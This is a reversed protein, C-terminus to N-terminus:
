EPDAWLHSIVIVSHIYKIYYTHQLSTTGLRKSTPSCKSILVFEQSCQSPSHQNRPASRTLKQSCNSIFENHKYIKPARPLHKPLVKQGPLVPQSGSSYLMTEWVKEAQLGFYLSFLKPPVGFRQFITGRVKFYFTTRLM